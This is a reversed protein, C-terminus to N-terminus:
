DRRFPDGLERTLMMEIVTTKGETQNQAAQRLADGVQDVHNCTIGEASMSKAIEAYSFTNKLNVGVYRDGFWLVQNKKEAGWQANHFVIATTPINERVCTLTELLSPGGDPFRLYGNSVSCVNGIDTAVMANSPM